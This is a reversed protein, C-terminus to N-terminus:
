TGPIRMTSSIKAHYSTRVFDTKSPEVLSLLNTATASSQQQRSFRSVVHGCWVVMMVSLAKRGENQLLM